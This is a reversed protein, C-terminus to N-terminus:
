ATMLHEVGIQGKKGTRREIVSPHLLVPPVPELGHPTGYTQKPSHAAAISAACGCPM